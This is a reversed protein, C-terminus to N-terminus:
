HGCGNPSCCHPTPARVCPHRNHVLLKAPLLVLDCAFRAVSHAAPCGSVVGYRELAVDEFYVPPHCFRALQLLDHCGWSCRGLGGGIFLAPGEKGTLEWCGPPTDSAPVLQGNADRPRIDVALATLPRDDLPPCLRDGESHTEAQPGAASDTPLPPLIERVQARVSGNELALGALVAFLLSLRAGTNLYCTRM